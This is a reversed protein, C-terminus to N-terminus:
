KECLFDELKNIQKSLVSFIVKRDNSDSGAKEFVAIEELRNWFALFQTDSYREGAHSRAWEHYAERLKKKSITVPRDEWGAKNPGNEFSHPTSVAAPFEGVDVSEQWWRHVGHMSLERQNIGEETLIRDREPHFNSVNRDLMKQLFHAAGDGYVHKFLVAFYDYDGRKSGSVREVVTRRDDADVNVAHKENTAAIIGLRSAVSITDVGKPELLMTPATIRRKMKQTARKDGVFFCEDAFVYCADMLHKNFKGTLQDSDEIVIGHPGFIRQALLDDFIIGKGTGQGGLFLPMVGMVRAPDQIKLAIWNLTYESMEANGNCLVEHIHDLILDCPGEKPEVGYGQWLNLFGEPAGGNPVMTTGKYQRREPSTLWLPGAPKPGEPTDVTHNEVLTLFDAKTLFAVTRRMEMEGDKLERGTEEDVWHGVRVKSGVEIVFFEENLEETAASMADNRERADRHKEMKRLSKELAKKTHNLDADVCDQRLEDLATEQDLWDMEAIEALRRKVDQNTM